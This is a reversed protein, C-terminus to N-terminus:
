DFNEDRLTNRLRNIVNDVVRGGLDSYCPHKKIIEESFDSWIYLHFINIDRETNRKKIGAAARLRDVLLEYLEWRTDFYLGGLYNQMEQLDLESMSQVFRRQLYHSAERNCITSLWIRFKKENELERYNELNNFIIIFVEGAIDNVVDTLQRKLRPVNWRACRGAISRYIHMKYRGLFIRWAKEYGSSHKDICDNILQRLTITKNSDTM